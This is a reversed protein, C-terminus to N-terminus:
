NVTWLDVDDPISYDVVKYNVNRKKNKKIEWLISSVKFNLDLSTKNCKERKKKYHSVSYVRKLDSKKM